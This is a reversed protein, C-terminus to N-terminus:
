AAAEREDHDHNNREERYPKCLGDSVGQDLEGASRLAGRQIPERGGNTDFWLIDLLGTSTPVRVVVHDAVECMRLVGVLVLVVRGLDGRYASRVVEPDIGLAPLRPQLAAGMHLLLTDGLVELVHPLPHELTLDGTILD